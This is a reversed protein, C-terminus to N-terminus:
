AVPSGAISGPHPYDDNILNRRKRKWTARLMAAIPRATQWIIRFVNDRSLTSCVEQSTTDSRPSFGRRPKTTTTLGLCRLYAFIPVNTPTFLKIVFFKENLSGGLRM